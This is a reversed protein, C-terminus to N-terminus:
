EDESDDDDLIFEFMHRMMQVLEQYGTDERDKFLGIGLEADPTGMEVDFGVSATRDGKAYNSEAALPQRGPRLENTQYGALNKSIYAWTERHKKVAESEPGWKEFLKVGAPPNQWEDHRLTGLLMTGLTSKWVAWSGPDRSITMRKVALVLAEKVILGGLNVGVLILPRARRTPRRSELDLLLRLAHKDITLTSSTDYGWLIVRVDPVDHPLLDRPWCTGDSATWSGLRDGSYGHVFIIDAVIRGKPLYVVTPGDNNSKSTPAM